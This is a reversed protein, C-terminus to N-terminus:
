HRKEPSVEASEAAAATESAQTLKDLRVTLRQLNGLSLLHADIWHLYGLKFLELIRADDIGRLKAEDVMWVGRISRKVGNRDLDITKPVLLGLEKLRSAFQMTRQAEVHFLQLFDLVKKMYPTELGKDDFLAEGATNSLGAYVEDVCVTLREKDDPIQALVFPYSRAFAPVYTGEAWKGQADVMLNEKDRLGVLAAVSFPGGETGVFVIPYDRAAEAFETSAIPVANTKAAFSFHNAVVSLKLKQHRERSLAIPREYILLEDAM